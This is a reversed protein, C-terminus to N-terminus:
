RAFQPILNTEGAPLVHRRTTSSAASATLNPYATRTAPHCCSRSGSSVRSRHSLALPLPRPRSVLSLPKPSNRVPTGVHRGCVGEGDVYNAGGMSTTESVEAM